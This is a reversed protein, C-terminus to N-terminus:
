FPRDHLAPAKKQRTRRAPARKPAKHEGSAAKRRRSPGKPPKPPPPNPELMSPQGEVIPQKEEEEEVAAAEELPQEPPAPPYFEAGLYVLLGKEEDPEIRVLLKDQAYNLFEAFEQFGYAKCDFSPQEALVWTALDEALVGNEM